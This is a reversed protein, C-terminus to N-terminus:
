GAATPPDNPFPNNRISEIAQRREEDSLIVRDHLTCINKEVFAADAGSFAWVYERAQCVVARNVARAIATHSQSEFARRLFDPRRFAIFLHRPGIPLTLYADPSGLHPMDLPRDSTMLMTNSKDLPMVYWRMSMLDPAIRENDIIEKLFQAAELHGISHSASFQEFPINNNQTPDYNDRVLEFGVRWMELIHDRIRSVNEPNRFILSLIFRAWASRLKDTWASGRHLLKELALCAHTDTFKLFESEFSQAVEPPVNDIRYLDRKYGTGRPSLRRVHLGRRVKRMTCVCGDAGAWQKLYFAPIYHHKRPDSV